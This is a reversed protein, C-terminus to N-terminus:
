TDERKNSDKADKSTYFYICERKKSNIYVDGDEKRM